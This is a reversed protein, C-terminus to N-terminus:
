EESGPRSVILQLADHCFKAFITKGISKVIVALVAEFNQALLFSIDEIEAHNGLDNRSISFRPWCTLM